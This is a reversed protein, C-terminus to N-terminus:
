RRDWPRSGGGSAAAAPQPAKNSAPGPSSAAPSKGPSAPPRGPNPTVAPATNGGIPAVGKVDNRPQYRGSPDTEVAVRISCPIFHLEETNQVVTKGTAQRISAFQQNAISRVKGPTKEHGEFWMNLRQWILRNEFEGETIRWTLRLCRGKSTDQKSIDEIDSEVIEATYAGAPIPSFDGQPEANEDYYGGIDAGM